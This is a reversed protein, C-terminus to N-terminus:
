GGVRRAEIERLKRELAPSLVHHRRKRLATGPLIAKARATGSSAPGSPTTAVRSPTTAGSTGANAGAAGTGKTGAGTSTAGARTGRAATPTSSTASGAGTAVGGPSATTSTASARAPVTVTRTIAAPTAGSDGALKVLSAALVGLALVVVVALAVAPAGWNPSAALRTRAAAGCSLCWDQNRDLAAGCLPCSDTTTVSARPAADPDTAAPPPAAVSV